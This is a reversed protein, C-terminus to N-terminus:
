GADVVLRVHGACAYNTSSKDMSDGWPVIGEPLSAHGAPLDAHLFSPAYSRFDQTKWCMMSSVLQLRYISAM